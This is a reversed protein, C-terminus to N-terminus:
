EDSLDLLGKAMARLKDVAMVSMRQAMELYAHNDPDSVFAQLDQPLADFGQHARQSTLWDGVPGAIDSFEALDIQLTQALLELEPLPVGTEGNEYRRIRGTSVGTAKALEKQSIDRAERTQRLLTGISSHRISLLREVELQQSPHPEGSITRDEWFHRIPVDLYFALLELEPLTPAKVGREFSGISASSLGIVEGLEKMSKGAAIRADRLLVGLIKGRLKLAPKTSM